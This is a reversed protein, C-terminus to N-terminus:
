ENSAMLLKVLIRSPMYISLSLATRLVVVAQKRRDFATTTGSVTLIWIHWFLLLSFVVVRVSIVSASVLLFAFIVHMYYIANDPLAITQKWAIELSFGVACFFICM